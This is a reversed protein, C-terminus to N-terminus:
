QLSNISQSSTSNNIEWTNVKFELHRNPEYLIRQLYKTRHYNCLCNRIDKLLATVICIRGFLISRNLNFYLGDKQMAEGNCHANSVRSKNKKLPDSFQTMVKPHKWFHSTLLILSTNLSKLM